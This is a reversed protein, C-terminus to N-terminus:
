DDSDLNTDTWECRGMLGHGVHNGGHRTPLECTSLGLPAGAGCPEAKSVTIVLGSEKGCAHPYGNSGTFAQCMCAGCETDVGVNRLIQLVEEHDFAKDSM